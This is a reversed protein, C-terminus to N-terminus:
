QYFYKVWFYIMYAWGHVEDQEHKELSSKLTHSYHLKYLACGPALTCCGNIQMVHRALVCQFAWRLLMWITSVETSIFSLM